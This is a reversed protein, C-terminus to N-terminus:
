PYLQFNQKPPWTATSIYKDLYGGMCMCKKIIYACLKKNSLNYIYVGFFFFFKNNEILIINSPQRKYFLNMKVMNITFNKFFKM